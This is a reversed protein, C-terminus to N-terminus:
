WQAVYGVLHPPWIEMEGGCRTLSFNIVNSIDYRHSPFVLRRLLRFLLFVLRESVIVMPLDLSAEPKVLHLVSRFAAFLGISNRRIASITQTQLSSRRTSILASLSLTRPTPFQLVTFKTSRFTKGCSSKTM